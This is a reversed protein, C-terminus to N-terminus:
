MFGPKFNKVAETFDMDGEEESDDSAIILSGTVYQNLKTLDVELEAEYHSQRCPVAACSVIQQTLTV